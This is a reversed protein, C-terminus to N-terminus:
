AHHAIIKCSNQVPEGIVIFEAAHSYTQWEQTMAM